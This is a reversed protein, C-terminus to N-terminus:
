EANEKPPDLPLLATITTGCGAASDILISGNQTEVRYQMGALGHSGTALQSTDFGCGDDQVCVRACAGEPGFDVTIRSARAYKSINTLAEQVLRYVTLAKDKGLPVEQLRAIVPIGAMKAHDRSLNELAPVLGLNSLASPTLDEVIRRKLAIGDNLTATLHQMRDLMDQSAGGQKDLKSRLRAVDLKAATLLSGLEDHLERALRGREDERVLQLNAALRRLSQTRRAVTNELHTRETELAQQAQAERRERAVTQRWILVFMGLAFLIMGAMALRAVQLSQRTQGDFRKLRLNNFAIVHAGQAQIQRMLERGAGSNVVTKWDQVKGELQLGVTARMIKQKARVLSILTELSERAGVQAAAPLQAVHADIDAVHQVFDSQYREDGTLLFSRQNSEADSVSLMLAQLQLNVRRAEVADNFALSTSRFNIENMVLLGACSLFVLVTLIKRLLPHTFWGALTEVTLMAQQLRIRARM